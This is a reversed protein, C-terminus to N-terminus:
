SSTRVSEDYLRRLMQVDEWAPRKWQQNRLLAAPHYTVVVKIGHYDHITGRLEGMRGKRNLLTNAATLGLALIFKPKILELQKLLYPECQEVEFREPTRNGPPRCKLINCIFVDERKLHIAALIKNLLQGALGVFPEGTADEDAGPAEGIVVIDADPNGVGFVFRTRSQGLPCKQCTCIMQNLSDLSPTNVWPETVSVLRRALESEGAPREREPQPEQQRPAQGSSGRSVIIDGFLSEQQMAYRRAEDKFSEDQESREKL